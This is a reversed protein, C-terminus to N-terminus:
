GSPTPPDAGESAVEAALAAAAAVPDAAQTIPRGIVLWTAGRTM